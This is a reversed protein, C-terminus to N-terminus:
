PWIIVERSVCVMFTQSAIIVHVLWLAIYYSEYFCAFTKELEKGPLFSVHDARFDSAKCLQNNQQSIVPLLLFSGWIHGNEFLYICLNICLWALRVIGSNQTSLPTVEPPQSFLGVIDRELFSHARGAGWGRGRQFGRWEHQGGQSNMCSALREIQWKFSNRESKWAMSTGGLQFGRVWWM